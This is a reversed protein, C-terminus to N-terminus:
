RALRSLYKRMKERLQSLGTDEQMGRLREQIFVGKRKPFGAEKSVEIKGEALLANLVEELEGRQEKSVSLLVAMEKVKMPVYLPDRILDYIIKKRKELQEKEM